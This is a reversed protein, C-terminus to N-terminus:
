TSGRPLDLVAQCYWYAPPLRPTTSDKARSRERALIGEALVARAPLDVRFELFRSTVERSLTSFEGDSLHRDIRSELIWRAWAQADAASAPAIPVARVETTDFEGLSPIQPRHFTLNRSLNMKEASTLSSDAFGTRLAPTPDTRWTRANDGLLANWVVGWDDSPPPLGDAVIGGRLRVVPDQNPGLEWLIDVTPVDYEPVPVGRPGVRTILAQTTPQRFLTVVHGELESLSEPTSQERESTDGPGPFGRGRPRVESILRNEELPYRDVLPSPLLSDESLLARFRGSEPMFIAEASLAMSGLSTLSYVEGQTEAVDGRDSPNSGRPRDRSNSTGSALEILGLESCRRLIARGVAVPRGLLLHDSVDKARIDGGLERARALVALLDPRRDPWGVTMECEFGRLGELRRALDIRM